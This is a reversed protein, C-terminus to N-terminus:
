LSRPYAAVLRAEAVVRLAPLGEVMQRIGGADRALIIRDESGVLDRGPGRPPRPTTQRDRRKSAAVVFESVGMARRHPAGGRARDHGGRATRRQRGHNERRTECGPQGQPLPGGGGPAGAEVFVMGLPLTKTKIRKIVQGCDETVEEFLGLVYAGRYKESTEYFSIYYGLAQDVSIPDWVAFSLVADRPRRILVLTPIQWQAARVM